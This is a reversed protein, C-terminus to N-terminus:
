FLTKFVNNGTIGWLILLLSIIILFFVLLKSFLQKLDFLVYRFYNKNSTNETNKNNEYNDYNEQDRYYRHYDQDNKYQFTNTTTQIFENIVNNKSKIVNKLYEIEEKLNSILAQYKYYQSDEQINNQLEIDYDKRTIHHGGGMNIWKMNKMIHGFKDEVAKLTIALADSNQECLTHFHLGEVGNLVEEDAKNLMDITVGLRSGYACPDYIANAGQTSIEPNIRLGISIGSRICKEKYRMLQGISNFIIHDCIKVLEDIDKEKYAPAYVHNEKNMEERGLRAEYLGSATTGSIYRGILPYEYFASFAKQALLIKCGTKDEVYKLIELNHVLINEDIIYAPTTIDDITM